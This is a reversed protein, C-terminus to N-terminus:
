RQISGFRPPGRAPLGSETGRGIDAAGKARGAAEDDVHGRSSFVGEASAGLVRSADACSGLLSFVSDGSGREPEKPQETEVGDEWIARVAERTPVAVESGACATGGAGAWWARGQKPLTRPARYVPPPEELCPPPTSPAGRTGADELGGGWNFPEVLSSSSSLVSGVRAQISGFKPAGQSAELAEELPSACSPPARAASHTAWPLSAPLDEAANGLGAPHQPSSVLSNGSEYEPSEDGQFLGAIREQSRKARGPEEGAPM